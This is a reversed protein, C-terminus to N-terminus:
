PAVDLAQLVKVGIPEALLDVITARYNKYHATGRHHEVAAQDDYIEYLHYTRPADASGHLDYRRCGPEQRTPGVMGRLVTEVESEKGPKPTFSAFVMVTM